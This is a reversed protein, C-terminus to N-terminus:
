DKLHHIQIVGTFEKPRMKGPLYLHIIQKRSFLSSLHLHLSPLPNGYKNFISFMEFPILRINQNDLKNKKLFEKLEWYGLCLSIFVPHGQNMYKKKLLAKIKVPSSLWPDIWILHVRRFSPRRFYFIKSQIKDLTNFFIKEEQKFSLQDTKDKAERIKKNFMAQFEIGQTYDLAFSSRLAKLDFFRTPFNRTCSATQSFNIWEPLDSLFYRAIGSTQFSDNLTRKKFSTLSCSTLFLLIFIKM